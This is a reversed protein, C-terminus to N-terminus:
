CKDNSLAGGSFKLADNWARLAINAEQQISDNETNIVLNNDDIYGITNVYLKDINKPCSFCAGKSKSRLYQLMFSEISLWAPGAAASGQGVGSWVEHLPQRIHKTSIGHGTMVKHEMSQITKSITEGIKIPAGMRAMTLTAFAPFIRDYCKTADLNMVTLPRLTQRSIDNVLQQTILADTTTRNARGGHMQDGLTYNNEGITMLQKGIKIKLYANLDAEILQIIRLKNIKPIGPLKEIMFHISQKWRMPSFAYEFPLSTMTTICKALTPIFTAIKYHGIHIGSPSSATSEKTHQFTDIFEECTLKTQFAHTTQHPIQLCSLMDRIKGDIPINDPIKKGKLIDITHQGNGHKGFLTNFTVTAPFTNSASTMVEESNKLLINHVTNCETVQKWNNNNTPCLIHFIQTKPPHLSNRIRRFARKSKESNKLQKIYAEVTTNNKDAYYKARAELHIERLEGHKRQITKLHQKKNKMIQLATKIDSTIPTPDNLSILKDYVYQPFKIHNHIHHVITRWLLYILGAQKLEPSWDLGFPTKGCQNEAHKQIRTIRESIAEYNKIPHDVRPLTRFQNEMEKIKNELKHKKLEDLITSTYANMKKPNGLNLIRASTLISNIQHGKFLTKTNLDLMIPKHDTFTISDYDLYTINQISSIIERSVLIIDIRKSGTKCTPIHTTEPHIHKMPDYLNCKNILKNLHSTTRDIDSNSDMSLIIDHGEVQQENIYDSLELWCWTKVDRHKFDIHQMRRYLQMYYTSSGQTQSNQCVMYANIITVKTNDKGALTTSTWRGHKDIHSHILRGLSPGQTITMTGGPQHNNHIHPDPVSALQMRPKSWMCNANEQIMQWTNRNRSNTKTETLLSIDSEYQKLTHFMAQMRIPDNIGLTNINNSVIRLTNSHKKNTSTYMSNTDQNTMRNFTNTIKTQKAPGSLDTSTNSKDHSLKM